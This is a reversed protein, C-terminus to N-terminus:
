CELIQAVRVMCHGCPCGGGGDEDVREESNESGDVGGGIAM